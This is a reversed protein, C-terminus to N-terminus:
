ENKLKKGCNSCFKGQSNNYLYHCFNCSRKETNLDQIVLGTPVAIIGYGLLMIVSAMFQGFVTQPAIDGYGVTTMTVIAWYISKPISTFGNEEGEILYMLSGFLIIIILVFVLFVTIKPLSRKLTNKLVSEEGLFKALKFIRFIRFIRFARIILFSGAELHFLSLYFPLVSVLDIAGYFSFIYSFKKKAKIIRYIYEITFLVSVIIESIDLFQRLSPSLGRISDVLVIVVSFLILFFFFISVINAKPASQTTM